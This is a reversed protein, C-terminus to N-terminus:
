GINSVSTDITASLLSVMGILGILDTPLALSYIPVKTSSCYIPQEPNLSIREISSLSHILLCKKKSCNALSVKTDLFLIKLFRELSFSRNRERPFLSSGSKLGVRQGLLM